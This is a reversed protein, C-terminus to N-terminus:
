DDGEFNAAARSEPGYIRDLEAEADQSCFRGGRDFLEDHLPNEVDPNNTGTFVDSADSVDSVDSDPKAPDSTESTESTVSTEVPVLNLRLLWRRVDIAKVEWGHRRQKDPKRGSTFRMSRLCRGLRRTTIKEPEVDLEEDQAIGQAAEKIMETPLFTSKPEFAASSIATETSVTSVDQPNIGICRALALATLATLDSSTMERNEKQYDISLQNMKKFLDTIKKSELWAAVALIAKWPELARGQLKANAVARREFTHLSDLNALALAWLDDILALRDHPWNAYDAPDANAKATDLTRILPVVISRSGLVPDPLKIASFARPCYTNIYRTRWKRDAVPEKVPVKCGRRNGALLLARKDPDTKPGSLNEADDFCLTAGYDALDRLAAYTGGALILQGLYGLEAILTLLQTKGSGRDGNPWIFGIVNFADLFWTAIVYCAILEAMLRQDGISREFDIFHDIVDVIRNFVDAADPRLGRRYRMVGSTSWLCDPPPTEALSVELALANAPQDGGEGYTLGKADVIFRKREVTVTPPNLKIVQGNKNTTETTTVRVYAWIAAYATGGLLGLPRSLMMPATELLEITPAAAQPLLRPADLLAELEEFSHKRLFDDVGVKHGNESPLYVARVSAGKRRLHETLRELALRVGGKSMVDSDFVIRVDRGNLAIHDFDALFTVGGLDNKGKFNWVGLLAVACTGYSALADDKKQGETIWLPIQPNGLVARCSPSCDLRMKAGKPFEYKLIKPDDSSGRKPQIIRPNNPRYLHLPKTGDTGHVPLLLGPVHRAQKADFGLAALDSSSTITRYGRRLIHEDAIGSEDRLMKLHEPSLCRQLETDIDSAAVQDPAAIQKVFPSETIQRLDLFEPVAPSQSQLRGPRAIEL